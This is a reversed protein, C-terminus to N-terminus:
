DNQLESELENLEKRINAIDEVLEQICEKRWNKLVRKISEVESGESSDGSMVWEVDRLAKDVISRWHAVMEFLQSETMATGEAAEARAKYEDAKREWHAWLTRATVLEAKLQTLELTLQDLSM